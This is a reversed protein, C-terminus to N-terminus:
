EELKVSQEVVDNETQMNSELQVTNSELQVTNSELQATNSELQVTKSELQMTNSELQATNSDLINVSSDNEDQESMTNGPKDTVQQETQMRAKRRQRYAAKKRKLAEKKMTLDEKFIEKIQEDTAYNSSKLLTFFVGGSTRRRSGNCTKMGGSLQIRKTEKFLELVKKGGIVKVTEIILAFKHEELREAIEKGIKVPNDHWRVRLQKCLTKMSPRRPIDDVRNSHHGKKGLKEYPISDEFANSESCDMFEVSHDKRAGLRSKVSGRSCLMADDKLDYQELSQMLKQKAETLSIYDSPDFATTLKKEVNSNQTENRQPIEAEFENDQVSLELADDM